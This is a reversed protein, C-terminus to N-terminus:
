RKNENGREEHVKEFMKFADDIHVYGAVDDIGYGYAEMLDAEHGHSGCHEVVDFICNDQDPYALKWGDMIRLIEHPIEAEQLKMHPQQISQYSPSLKVESDNLSRIM